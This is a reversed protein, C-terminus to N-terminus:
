DSARLNSKYQNRLLNKLSYARLRLPQIQISKRTFEQSYLSHTEM